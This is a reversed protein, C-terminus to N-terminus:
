KVLDTNLIWSFGTVHLIWYCRGTYKIKCTLELIMIFGIAHLFGIDFARHV